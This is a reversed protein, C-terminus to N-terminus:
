RILVIIATTCRGKRRMWRRLLRLMLATFRDVVRAAACLIIAVALRVLLLLRLLWVLLLLRLLRLLRLRLRLLRLLTITSKAATAAAAATRFLLPLSCILNQLNEIQFRM